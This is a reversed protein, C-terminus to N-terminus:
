NVWTQVLSLHRLLHLHAEFEQPLHLPRSVSANLVARMDHAIAGLLELREEDNGLLQEAASLEEQLSSVSTGAHEAAQIVRQAIEVAARNMGTM